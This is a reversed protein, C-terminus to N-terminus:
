DLNKSLKKWVEMSRALHERTDGGIGYCQLGIPGKYGLETLTRLFKGVDVSYKDDIFIDGGADRDVVTPYSEGFFVAAANPHQSRTGGEGKPLPAPPSSQIAETV